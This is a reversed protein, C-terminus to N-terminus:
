PPRRLARPAQARQRSQDDVKIMEETPLIMYTPDQDLFTLSVDVMDPNPISISKWTAGEHECREGTSENINSGKCHPCEIAALVFADGFLHYAFSILPLWKTFNLKESWWPPASPRPGYHALSSSASDASGVIKTMEKTM